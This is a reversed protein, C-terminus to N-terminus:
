GNKRTYVIKLVMFETGDKDPEYLELIHKDDDLLRTFGRSNKKVGSWPDGHRGTFAIVKCGDRCTGLSTTVASSTTDIWASTYKKEFTDYGYVAMGQFPMALNGGDFEELVFRNGLIWKRECSGRSEVPPSESNMRYTIAMNWKGTLKDLLRHHEGPMAHSVWTDIMSESDKSTDSETNENRTPSGEPQSAVDSEAESALEAQRVTARGGRMRLPEAQTPAASVLWLSWGTSLMLILTGSGGDPSGVGFLYQEGARAVPQAFAAVCVGALSLFNRHSIM